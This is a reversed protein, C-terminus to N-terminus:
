LDGGSPPAPPAVKAVSARREEANVGQQSISRVIDDWGFTHCAECCECGCADECSKCCGEGDPILLGGYDQYDVFELKEVDDETSKIVDDGVKDILKSIIYDTRDKQIDLATSEDGILFMSMGLIGFTVWQFGVFIWWQTDVSEQNLVTMTFKMLAGNSIVAAM